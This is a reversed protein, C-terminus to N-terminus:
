DSRQELCRIGIFYFLVSVGHSVARKFADESIKATTKLIRGVGNHSAWYEVDMQVYNLLLYEKCCNNHNRKKADNHHVENM